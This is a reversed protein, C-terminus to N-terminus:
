KGLQNIETELSAIYAMIEEWSPTKGYIMNKMRGYDEILASQNHIAPILCMTGPFAEEYKAWGRPYFRKKFAVVEKLLEINTFAKTKVDSHGMKFIDYYHRSYRPPVPSEVPRYHEHHLITIKEWFTREPRITPVHPESLKLEPLYQDVFSTIRFRDNPNWLALPGIELKIEPTIYFYDFVRPFIIHLVHCDAENPKVTCIPSLLKAIKDKLTTSIYEGARNEIIKNFAAQKSNSPQELLEGDHLVTKLSLIIDIDESFREILHFAKSLSTGGKFCLIQSLEEDTFIKGLVWSVWFDKEVIYNPLKAKVAVENFIALRERKDASAIRDM